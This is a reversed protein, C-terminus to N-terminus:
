NKVEIALAHLGQQLEQALLKYIAQHARVRSMAKLAPATIIVKFHTEGEPRAGAHGIHKYSEDIVELHSPQLEQTLITTIRQTRTM